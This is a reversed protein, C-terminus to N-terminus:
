KKDKYEKYLEKFMDDLEQWSLDKYCPESALIKNDKVLSIVTFYEETNEDTRVTSEVYWLEKDKFDTVGSTVYYGDYEKLIRQSIFDLDPYSEMETYCWTYDIGKIVGTYDIYMVCEGDLVNEDYLYACWMQADDDRYLKVSDYFHRTKSQAIREIENRDKVTKDQSGNDNFPIYFPNSEYDALYLTYFFKDSKKGNNKDADRDNETIIIECNPAKSTLIGVFDGDAERFCDGDYIVPRKNETDYMLCYVVDNYKFSYGDSRNGSSVETTKGNKVGELFPTIRKIEDEYIENNNYLSYNADYDSLRKIMKGDYEYYAYKFSVFIDEDYRDDYLPREASCSCLQLVFAFVCLICVTRKM